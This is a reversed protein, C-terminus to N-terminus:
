TYTLYATALHKDLDEPYGVHIWADTYVLGAIYYGDTIAQQIMDPMSGITPHAKIYGYMSQRFGWVSMDRVHLEDLVVPQRHLFETLQGSNVIGVAHTYIEHVQTTLAISAFVDTKLLADYTQRYVTPPVIVDGAVILFTSGTLGATSSIIQSSYTPAVHSVFDYSFRAPGSQRIYQSVADAQYSVCLTIHARRFAVELADLIHGLIPKGDIPLLCKQTGSTLTDMRTGLGGALIVIEAAKSKSTSIVNM